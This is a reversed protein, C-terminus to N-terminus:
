PEFGNGGCRPCRGGAGGDGGCQRCPAWRNDTATKPWIISPRYEPSQPLVPPVNTTLASSSPGSESPGSDVQIEKAGCISCRFRALESLYITEGVRNQFHKQVIARLVNHTFVKEHGCKKCRGIAGAHVTSFYPSSNNMAIGLLHNYPATYSWRPPTIRCFAVRQDIEVSRKRPPDTGTQEISRKHRKTGHKEQWGAYSRSDGVGQGRWCSVFCRAVM